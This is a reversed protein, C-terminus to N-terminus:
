DIPFPTNERKVRSKRWAYEGWALAYALTLGVLDTALDRWDDRALWRHKFLLQAAEQIVGVLLLCFYFFPKKRLKPFVYITGLGLLLFLSIHGIVHETDNAFITFLVHGFTAWKLGLWEEPFIIWAVLLLLPWLRTLRQIHERQM